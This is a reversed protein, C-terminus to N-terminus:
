CRYIAVIIVDYVYSTHPPFLFDTRRGPQEERESFESRNDDVFYNARFASAPTAARKSTNM